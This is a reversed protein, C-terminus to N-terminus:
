FYEIISNVLSELRFHKYAYSQGLKGLKHREAVDLKCCQDLIGSFGVYDGSPVILGCGAAEIVQKAEGNIMGVLPRGSSMYSQVKGPLTYAFVPIDKLSILLYQSYHYFLPMYRAPYQGLCVVTKELGEAQILKILEEKYRGDGFLLIVFETVDASRKVGELVSIFDQADGINGTFTFIVKNKWRSFLAQVECDEKTGLPLESLYDAEIWQPFYVLNPKSVGIEDLKFEFGRSSLFLTDASNYIYRCLKKLPYIIWKHKVGVTVVSDPWIDLVWLYLPVGICKKCLIAPLMSFIPSLQVGFVLDYKGHRLKILFYVCASVVFSIYNLVLSVLNNRRSIQPVRHVTIGFYDMFEEPKEAYESFVKGSPYNPKSTLVDVDFGRKHLELVLENVRFNEPWFYQSVVLVKKISKTLVEEM